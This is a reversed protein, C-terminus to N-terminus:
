SIVLMGCRELLKSHKVNQFRCLPSRSNQIRVAERAYKLTHNLYLDIYERNLYNRYYNQSLLSPHIVFTM